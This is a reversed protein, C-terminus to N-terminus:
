FHMDSCGTYALHRSLICVGVWTVPTPLAVLVTAADDIMGGTGTGHVYEPGSSTGEGLFDSPARSLCVRNFEM